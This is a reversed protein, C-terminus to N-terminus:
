TTEGVQDSYLYAEPLYKLIQSPQRELEITENQLQTLAEKKAEGFAFAYAADIQKLAPFTLTIRTLQGAQYGAAWMDNEAAAPSDPLVGAIHGDAGIGFLAIVIDNGAFAQRAMKDYNQATEELSQGSQLVPLSTAQKFDFGADQLQRWNSDKHGPEGYREDTLTIALNASLEPPIRKMIEAEAAINSGGCVLWLVKKGAQLEQMLRDTFKETGERADNCTIFQM